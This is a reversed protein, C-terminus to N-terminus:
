LLHGITIPVCRGIPRLSAGTSRWHRSLGHLVASIVTWSPMIGVTTVPALFLIEVVAALPNTLSGVIGITKAGADRAVKLIVTAGPTMATMGIGVFVDDQRITAAQAAQGALEGSVTYASLGM